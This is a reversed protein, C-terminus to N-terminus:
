LMSERYGPHNSQFLDELWRAGIGPSEPLRMEGSVIELPRDILMPYLTALHARVTEQFVVGTHCGSVQVGALLTLPGTCDHMLTPVNYIQALDAIRRTASIGGVWTPDIMIYDAAGADL